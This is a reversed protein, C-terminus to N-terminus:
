QCPERGASVDGYTWETADADRYVVGSFTREPYFREVGGEYVSRYLGDGSHLARVMSPEMVVGITVILVRCDVGAARGRIDWGALTSSAFRNTFLAAATTRVERGSDSTRAGGPLPGETAPAASNSRSDTPSNEDRDTGVIFLFILVVILCGACGYQSSNTRQTQPSPAAIRVGCTPCTPAQDSIQRGCEPCNILAM